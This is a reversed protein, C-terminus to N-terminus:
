PSTWIDWMRKEYENAAEETSFVRNLIGKKALIVIM